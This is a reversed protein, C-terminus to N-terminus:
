VSYITPLTLHTYSVSVFLFAVNDTAQGVALRKEIWVSQTISRLFTKTHKTDNYYWPELLLCVKLSQSRFARQANSVTIRLSRARKKPIRARGCSWVCLTALMCGRKGWEIIFFFLKPFPFYFRVILRCFIVVQVKKEQKKIMSHPSPPSVLSPSQLFRQCRPRLGFFRARDNVLM